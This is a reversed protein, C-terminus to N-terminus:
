PVDLTILSGRRTAWKAGLASLTEEDLFQRAMRFLATEEKQFHVRSVEIMKSALACGQALDSASQVEALLNVIQDHEMRM